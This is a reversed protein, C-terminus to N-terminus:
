LVILMDSSGNNKLIEWHHVTRYQALSPLYAPTPPARGELAAERRTPAYAGYRIPIKPHLPNALFSERNTQRSIMSHSVLGAHGDM